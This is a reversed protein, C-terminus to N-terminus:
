NGSQATQSHMTMLLDAESRTLQCVQMLEEISTGKRVLQIAQNYPTNASQLQLELQGIQQKLQMIEQEAQLLREGVGITGANLATLDEKIRCHKESFDMRQSLDNLTQTAKRKSVFLYIVSFFLIILPVYEM